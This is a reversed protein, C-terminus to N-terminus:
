PRDLISLLLDRRSVLLAHVFEAREPEFGGPVDCIMCGEVIEAVNREDFSVIDRMASSLSPNSRLLRDCLDFHGMRSPDQRDWGCQHLGKANFDALEKKTAAHRLRSRGFQFGLSTGNDYVPAISYSTTGDPSRHVLFGWNETHRDTNAILADFAYVRGWWDMRFTSGLFVRTLRANSLVTHPESGSRFLSTMADVAHVLRPPYEEDPYGFFFEVLAGTEGTRSDHAIFCPPVTLGIITALRYAIVESWIQPARFGVATKFLYAHNAILFDDKTDSPAFVMRKPKSGVPHIAFDDSVNWGAIDVVHGRPQIPILRPFM